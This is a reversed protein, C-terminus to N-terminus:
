DDPPIVEPRRARPAYDLSSRAVLLIANMADVHIGESSVLCIEEWVVTAMYYDRSM